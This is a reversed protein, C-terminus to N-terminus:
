AIAQRFRRAYADDAAIGVNYAVLEIAQPDLHEIAGVTFYAAAHARFDASVIGVRLRRAPDRSNDHRARAPGLAPGLQADWRRHLPALSAATVGPVYQAAMLRNSLAAADHPHHALATELSAIATELEGLRLALDGLNLAAPEFAPDAAHARKYF